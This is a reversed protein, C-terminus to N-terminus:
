ILKVLIENMIYLKDPNIFINGNKYILDKEKLLEEINYPNQVNVHYKDYFAKTNIGSTKRLGLILEYDMIEKESLIEKNLITNGKLYETLSKTNDYRVGEIYGSAGLGFGYYEENNWYVLNHKSEYGEKAFNSIEYHKFGYKKLKHCIVKYMKYDIDEPIPLVNNNKLVTHDEIMLSYTSVHNINLKKIYKLDRKLTFISEKPIAYILDVNINNLGLSKCINIKQFADQFNASRNLFTLNKQNFSEIGISIRNVGNKVLLSILEESIDNLNCEFTFECDNTRKFLKIIRFLKNLEKLSLASPTGGGIYITKIPNDLYRDEIEKKLANLYKDVWTSNYIFKCFDCYSCIKNCFPIHIYVSKETM